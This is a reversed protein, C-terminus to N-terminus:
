GEVPPPVLGPAFHNSLDDLFEVFLRPDVTTWTAKKGHLDPTLVLERCAARARPEGRAFHWRDGHACANRFHRAFELLPVDRNRLGGQIIMDGLQIAAVFMGSATLDVIIEGRLTAAAAMIRSSSFSLVTDPDRSGRVELPLDEGAPTGTVARMVQLLPLGPHLMAVLAQQQALYALKFEQARIAIQEGTLDAM